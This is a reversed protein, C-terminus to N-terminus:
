GRSAVGHGETPLRRPPEGGWRLAGCEGCVGSGERLRGSAGDDASRRSGAGHDLDLLDDASEASRWCTPDTQSSWRIVPQTDNACLTTLPRIGTAAPHLIAM